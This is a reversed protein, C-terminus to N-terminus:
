GRSFGSTMDHGCCCWVEFVSLIFRYSMLTADCSICIALGAFHFSVLSRLFQSEGQFGTGCFFFNRTDGIPWSLERSPFVHKALRYIFLCCHLSVTKITRARVFSIFEIWGYTQRPTPPLSDAVSSATDDHPM